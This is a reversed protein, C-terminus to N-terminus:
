AVKQYAEDNSVRPARTHGFSYNKISSPLLAKQESKCLYSARIMADDFETKLNHGRVETFDANEAKTLTEKNRYILFGCSNVGHFGQYTFDDQKKIPIVFPLRNLTNNIITSTETYGFRNSGFDVIFMFHIHDYKHSGIVKSEVSYIIEMKPQARKILSNREKKDLDAQNTENRAHREKEFKRFESTFLEKIKQIIKSSMKSFDVECVFHMMSPKTMTAVARNLVHHVSQINDKRDAKKLVVLKIIM